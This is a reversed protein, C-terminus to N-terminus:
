RVALMIYEMQEMVAVEIPMYAHNVGCLESCQGFFVGQQKVLAQAQNLRGPVADMKIGFSPVAWSHIVDDSGVLFRIHAGQPLILPVETKLLRPEGLKLDSTERMFSDIQGLITLDGYLYPSKQIVV